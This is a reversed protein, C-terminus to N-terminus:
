KNKKNHSSSMHWASCEDCFYSRLFSTGGFGQKLRKKIAADCRSESSFCSKGCIGKIPKENGQIMGLELATRKDIPEIDPTELGIENLIHDICSKMEKAMKAM